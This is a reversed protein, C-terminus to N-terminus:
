NPRPIRARGGRSEAVYSRIADKLAIDSLMAQPVSDDSYKTWPPIVEELTPSATGWANGELDRIWEFLEGSVGDRVLEALRSQEDHAAWRGGVLIARRNELANQGM